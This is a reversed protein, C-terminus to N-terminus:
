SRLKSSALRAIGVLVLLGGSLIAVCWPLLAVTMWSYSALEFEKSIWWIMGAFALFASGAALAQPGPLRGSFAVSAAFIGATGLFLIVISLIALWHYRTNDITHASGPLTQLAITVQVAVIGVVLLAISSLLLKVDRRM